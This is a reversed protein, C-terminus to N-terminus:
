RRARPIGSADALASSRKAKAPSINCRMFTSGTRRWRSSSTRRQIGCPFRSSPIHHLVHHAPCRFLGTLLTQDAKPRLLDAFVEGNQPRFDVPLRQHVQVVGGGGLLRLRDQVGQHAVVRLLVGVHVTPDMEEALHRGLRVLAPAGAHPLEQVRRVIPLDDEGTPGGLPDIQHGLAVAPLVQPRAVLDDDRGHLVVGVDHGPLHDALLLPRAELDDGHVIGPLKQHVLVLPQEGVPRLDNRHRM